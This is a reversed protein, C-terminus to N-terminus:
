LSCCTTHCMSVMFTYSLILLSKYSCDIQTVTVHMSYCKIYQMYQIYLRNFKKNVTLYESSHCVPRSHYLLCIQLKSLEFWASCMPSTCQNVSTCQYLSPGLQYLLGISIQVRLRKIAHSQWIALWMHNKSCTMAGPVIPSASLPHTFDVM